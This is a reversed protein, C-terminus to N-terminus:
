CGAPDSAAGARVALRSIPRCPTLWSGREQPSRTAPFDSTASWRFFEAGGARSIAAATAPSSAARVKTLQMLGLRELLDSVAPVGRIARPPGQRLGVPDLRRPRDRLDFQLRAHRGTAPSRHARIAGTILVTGEPLLAAIQALADPERTLFFPFASEPWILHTVDACGTSQPRERSRVARSLPEDGAAEARLQVQEDQQLNPQM